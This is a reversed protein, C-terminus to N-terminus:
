RPSYIGANALADRKTRFVHYPEGDDALAWAAAEEPQYGYADGTERPVVWKNLEKDLYAVVWVDGVKVARYDGEREARTIM